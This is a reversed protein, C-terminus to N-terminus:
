LAALIRAAILKAQENDEASAVELLTREEGTGALARLYYMGLGDPDESDIARGM